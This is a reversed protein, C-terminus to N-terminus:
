KGGIKNNRLIFFMILLENALKVGKETLLLKTERGDNDVNILDHKLLFPIIYKSLHSPSINTAKRLRTISTQSSENLLEPLVYMWGPIMLKDM